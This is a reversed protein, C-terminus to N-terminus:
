KIRGAACVNQENQNKKGYKVCSLNSRLIGKKCWELESMNAPNYRHYSMKRVAQDRVFQDPASFSGEKWQPLHIDQRILLHIHLQRKRPSPFLTPIQTESYGEEEWVM